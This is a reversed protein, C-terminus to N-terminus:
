GARPATSPILLGGALAVVPAIVALVLGTGGFGFSLGSLAAAGAPAGSLVLAIGLTSAAVALVALTRILRSAQPGALTLVLMALFAMWAGFQLSPYAFTLRQFRPESGPAAQCLPDTGHLPFWRCSALSSGDAALHAIGNPALRYRTSDAGLADGWGRTSAQHASLAAILLLVIATLRAISPSM